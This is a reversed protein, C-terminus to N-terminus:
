LKEIPSLPSTHAIFSIDYVKESSDTPPWDRRTNVCFPFPKLKESTQPFLSTQIRLPKYYANIVKWADYKFLGKIVHYLRSIYWSLYQMNIHIEHLLYERKFYLDVRPHYYIPHIIPSDSWDIVIIPTSINWNLISRASKIINPKYLAESNIIMTDFTDRIRYIFDWSYHSNIGYTIFSGSGLINIFGDCYLDIVDSIYLIKM